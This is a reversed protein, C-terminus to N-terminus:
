QGLLVAGMGILCRDGVRAGHVIAGHGIVVDAGIVNPVGHDCHVVAGDQVNTRPGISVPAVDGRVVTNFWFSALEGVTVDGTLMASRAKFYNGSTLGFLPMAM